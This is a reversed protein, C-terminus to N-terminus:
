VNWTNFNFHHLKKNKRVFNPFSWWRSLSVQLLIGSPSTTDRQCQAHTRSREGCIIVHAVKIENSSVAKNTGVCNYWAVAQIGDHPQILSIEVHKQKRNNSKKEFNTKKEKTFKTFLQLWLQTPKNTTPFYLGLTIRWCPSGPVRINKKDWNMVEGQGM